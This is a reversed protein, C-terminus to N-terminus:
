LILDWGTSFLPPIVVSRCGYHTALWAHDRQHFLRDVEVSAVSAVPAGAVAVVRLDAFGCIRMLTSGM